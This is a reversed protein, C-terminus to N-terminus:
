QQLTIKGEAVLQEEEASARTVRFVGHKADVAANLRRQWDMPDAPAPVQILWVFREIERHPLENKEIAVQGYEPDSGDTPTYFAKLLAKDTAIAPVACIVVIIALSIIRM